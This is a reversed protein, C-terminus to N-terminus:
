VILRDIPLFVHPLIVRGAGLSYTDVSRVYGGFANLFRHVQSQAHHFRGASSWGYSGGFIAENGDHKKTYQLASAALGCAEPWDLEVFRDAGRATTGSAMPSQFRGERAAILWALRAAPRAIRLPHRYAEKMHLGISCPKPDREFAKLAGSDDVRYTGWHSATLQGPILSVGPKLAQVKHNLPEGHKNSLRQEHCISQENALSQKAKPADVDESVAAIPERAAQGAIEPPKHDM